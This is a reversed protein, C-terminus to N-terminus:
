GHCFSLDSQGFRIYESHQGGPHECGKDKGPIIQLVAAYPSTVGTVSCLQDPATKGMVTTDGVSLFDILESYSSVSTIDMAHSMKRATVDIWRSFFNQQLTPTIRVLLESVRQSALLPVAHHRICGPGSNLIVYHGGESVLYYACTLIRKWDPFSGTLPVTLGIDSVAKDLPSYAPTKLLVAALLNKRKLRKAPLIAKGATPFWKAQQQILHGISKAFINSRKQNGKDYVSVNSYVYIKGNPNQCLGIVVHRLEKM